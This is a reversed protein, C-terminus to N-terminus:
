RDVDAFKGEEKMKKYYEAFLKNAEGFVLDPDVKRQKALIEILLDQNTSAIARTLLINHRLEGLSLDLDKQLRKNERELLEIIKKDKESGGEQQAELPEGAKHKM